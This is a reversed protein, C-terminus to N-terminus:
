RRLHALRRLIQRVLEQEMDRVLQAEEAEKALTQADDYAYDRTVILEAPALLIRGAADEASLTVRHTLRYERVKGGGSLSLIDKGRREGSLRIRVEAGQATAQVTKGSVRLSQSLQLALSSGPPADIYASAFPLPSQGRLHFGCGALLVLGLALIVGWSKGERRM